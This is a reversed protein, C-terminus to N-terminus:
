SKLATLARRSSSCSSQSLMKHGLSLVRMSFTTERQAMEGNRELPSRREM